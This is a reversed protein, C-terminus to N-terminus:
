FSAKMKSVVEKIFSFKKDDLQLGKVFSSDFDRVNRHTKYTKISKEILEYNVQVNSDTLTNDSEPQTSSREHTIDDFAKYAKMYERARRSCKRVRSLSLNDQGLCDTVLEMFKRKSRKRIIPQHRYYLKSMAWLYEIGEGALEPHCKPTRDVTVGMRAGYFQLLTLENTFDTQKQMLCSLSTSEDLIGMENVRGKETYQKWSLPNIWGREYLIQLSGKPKGVWGEQIQEVTHTIPLGLAECQSQLHKQNGVPSLINAGELMEVLRVKNITKTLTKGTHKDYRRREQQEPSLYFPGKDSESFTMSQTHGLQLEYSSNHYPGFCTADTLVTKRMIPQKGGFTKRVKQMHLGDPQMRDHGNSHDFLFIYDFQPYLTQLVDVCDELQLVMSDYTWYGENNAGYELFRTFPTSTLVPKRSTGNKGSAASEDLYNKRRGQERARNVKALQEETLPTAYGLERCVFSSVMVGRGEDKPLLARTGDPDSWSKQVLTYQKFICEDQGVIMLPKDSVKKRVSLHGGYPLGNCEDQFIPHDDVHMEVYQDGKSDTYAYGSTSDLEGSGVLSTYRSRPIQIWRHTRIEYSQYRQIFAARYKVNEPKEHSDVYYSKKSTSYVFGLAGLWNYITRPCLTSLGNDNLFQQMTYESERSKQIKALISPIATRVLYDHLMEGNLTSLHSRAYALFSQYLDPNNEFFKPLKNKWHGQRVVSPNPFSSSQRFIRLWEMITRPNTIKMPTFNDDEDDDSVLDQEEYDIKNIKDIAISCIDLFDTTTEYKTLAVKLTVALYRAKLRLVFVDYPSCIDNVDKDNVIYKWGNPTTYANRLLRIQRAIHRKVNTTNQKSKDTTQSTKGKRMPAKSSNVFLMLAEPSHWKNQKRIEDSQKTVICESEKDKTQHPEETSNPIDSPLVPSTPRTPIDNPPITPLLTQDPLVPSLTQDKLVAPPPPSPDPTQDKLVAPPPPSLNQTQDPVVAPPPPEISPQMSSPLSKNIRASRRPVLSSMSRIAYKSWDPKIFPVSKINKTFYFYSVKKRQVKNGNTVIENNCKRFVGNCNPTNADSMFALAARGFSSCLNRRNVLRQDIGCISDHYQILQILVDEHLWKRYYLGTARVRLIADLLAIYSPRVHFPMIHLKKKLSHPYRYLYSKSDDYM